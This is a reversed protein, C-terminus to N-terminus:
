KNHIYDVQSIPPIYINWLVKEGANKPQAIVLPTARVLNTHHYLVEAITIMEFEDEEQPIQKTIFDLLAQSRKIAKSM